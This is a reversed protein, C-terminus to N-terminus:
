SEPVSYVMLTGNKKELSFPFSLALNGKQASLMGGQAGMQMLNTQWGNERLIDAYKKVADEEFDIFYINFKKMGAEEQTKNVREIKGLTFQPVDEFMDSPWAATEAIETKFDKGEFEIKGEEVKVDVDKGTTEKIVKEAMKEATKEDAKKGGCGTLVLLSCALAAVMIVTWNKKPAM